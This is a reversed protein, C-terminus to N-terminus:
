GPSKGVYPGFHMDGIVAIRFGSFAEPLRRLRISIREVVPAHPELLVGDIITLAGLGV